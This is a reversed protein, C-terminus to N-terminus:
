QNVGELMRLSRLTLFLLFVYHSASEKTPIIITSLCVRRLIELIVTLCKTGSEIVSRISLGVADVM